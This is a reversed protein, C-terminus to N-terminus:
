LRLQPPLPPLIGIMPLQSTPYSVRHKDARWYNDVYNYICSDKHVLSM